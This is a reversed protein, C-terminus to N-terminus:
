EGRWEYELGTVGLGSNEQFSASRTISETLVVAGPFPDYTPKGGLPPLFWRFIARDVNRLGDTIAGDFRAGLMEARCIDAGTMDAGHFVTNKAIVGKLCTHWMKANTFNAARLYSNTMDAGSLDAGELNCKQMVARSLDACVLVAGRLDSGSLDVARMNSCTFNVGRLDKGRLDCREYNRGCFIYLRANAMVHDRNDEVDM